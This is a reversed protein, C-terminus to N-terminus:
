IIQCESDAPFNILIGTGNHVTIEMQGQIDECLGKILKLGLSEKSGNILTTEIGIGNDNIVLTIRDADRHILIDVIGQRKGPFAYQISNTVAENIILVVPIAQSLRLNIAYLNLNFQIDGYTNFNDELYRVFEPLLVSIDIMKIDASQFLKEHILSLAYVRHQSKQVAQLAENDLYAAQSELLNTVTHLDDRVRQHVEKLLWEKENVLHLLKLHQKNIALNAKQKLRHNLFLGVIIIVLLSAGMITRNGAVIDKKIEKQQFLNQERLFSDKKDATEGTYNLKLLQMKKKRTADEFEDHYIKYKIHNQLASRYNAELSDMKYSISYKLYLDDTNKREHLIALNLFQRATPARNRSIYFQAIQLYDAFMEGYPDAQSNTKALVGLRKFYNDALMPRGLLNNCIGVCSLLQLKEWVTVPPFLNTLSDILSLALDPKNIEVAIIKTVLPVSKYWFLHNERTGTNIASKFWKVSEDIKGLSAYAVGLRMDCTAQFISLGSWKVNQLASRAYDLAGIYDGNNGLIYSLHNQAYFTHKFDIKASLNIIQRLDSEALKFDGDMHCLSIKWLLEIQKEVLGLSEYIRLSQYYSHEKAAHNNLVLDGIRMYALAAIQLRGQQVGSKAIKKFIMRSQQFDGKQYHLEASQFLCTIKWDSSAVRNSETLAFQLFKSASDMDNKYAGSQNLYWLFIELLAQARKSGTTLKISRKAENLQGSNLYNITPTNSEEPFSEKYPFLLPMHTIRCAIAMISDQDLNNQTLCNASQFVGTVLLRKKAITYNKVTEAVSSTQGNISTFTILLLIIIKTRTIM